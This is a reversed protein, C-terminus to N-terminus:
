ECRGPAYVLIHTVGRALREQVTAGHAEAQLRLGALKAAHLSERAARATAVAATVGELCDQPSPMRSPLQASLLTPAAAAASAPGFDYTAKGGAQSTQPDTLAPVPPGVHPGHQEQDEQGGQAAPYCIDLPDSPHFPGLDLVFIVQLGPPAYCHSHLVSPRLLGKVQYM